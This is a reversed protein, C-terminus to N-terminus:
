QSALEVTFPIAPIGERNYLNVEYYPTQAFDIIWREAAPLSLIVSDGEIRGPCPRSNVLLANITDGGQLRLGDANRFKLVAERGLLCVSQLSPADCLVSEGYIHGCALLALREGVPRKAKPHIDWRMGADSNSCLYVQPVANAVAEQCSRLVPFATGKDQFWAEYPALQVILFPLEERWLDRWNQILNSLVKDYIEAHPSDSEGQYWLVGRATYPAINSLMTHYLGCPRWPHDPGILDAYKPQPMKAWEEMTKLQQRRSLGPYTIEPFLGPILHNPINGPTNRYVERYDTLDIGELGQRYEQLWIEGTTGELYEQGMWCCARTGGWNCGVIGVPVNLSAYLKRAFYYGVASFWPLDEATCQRWFGFESFDHSELAGEFSVEPYDFFRIETNEPMELEQEKEADFYLLYEMNSQGGAIWVEGIQVDQILIREEGANIEMQLDKAAKQFPLCLRWRGTHDSRTEEAALVFSGDLLKVCVSTDESAEGWVAIPKERQLIMHDSFILPLKLM